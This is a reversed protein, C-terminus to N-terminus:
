IIEEEDKINELSTDAITENAVSGAPEPKSESAATFEARPTYSEQEPAAAPAAAPMVAAVEPPVLLNTIVAIGQQMQEMVSVAMGRVIQNMILLMMSIVLGMVTPGLSRAISQALVSQKQTTDLIDISRFAIWLADITGLVGVLLSLTAIIPIWEIRKEIRPLFAMTEEEITGRVTTPDTEAAELAKTTILPLATRSVSKCFSIARDLDQGAVMRKINSLFKALDIHYVWQLVMMRELTIVTAFFALGLMILLYVNNKQISLALEVWM